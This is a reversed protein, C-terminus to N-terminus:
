PSTSLCTLNKLAYTQQLQSCNIKTFTTQQGTLVRSLVLKDLPPVGVVFEGGVTELAALDLSSLQPTGAISVSGGISRLHPLALMTLGPCDEVTLIRGLSQLPLTVSTASLKTLSLYGGISRLSPLNLASGKLAVNGAVDHLRPADVILSAHNSRVLLSTSIEEVNPLALYHLNSNREAELYDMWTATIGRIEALQTDVALFARISTLGDFRLRALKGTNFLAVETATALAPMEVTELRPTTVIFLHGVEKLKPFRVSRVGDGTITLHAAFELRSFVIAAPEALDVLVAGDIRVCDLLPLLGEKHKINQDLHCVSAVLQLLVFVLM